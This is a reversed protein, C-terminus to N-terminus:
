GRTPSRRVSAQDPSDARGAKYKTWYDLCRRVEDHRDEILNRMEPHTFLYLVRERIARVVFEGVEDPLMGERLSMAAPHDLSREFSGGYKEPRHRSSLFLNTRVLGPSLVTVGVGHERLDQSLGESLAVVAYKTAAYLGHHWGDLVQWGGISSTNVVHGGEGTEIIRPVFERIGHIVGFTNVGFVWDYDGYPIDHLATGGYGVGANNVLIHLRGFREWTQAAFAAVQDREAVDVVTALVEVDLAELETTATELHEPLVDAVAFRRVGHRALTKAIGLGIGSGAGTVVAVSTTLDIM